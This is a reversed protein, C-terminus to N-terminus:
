RTDGIFSVLHVAHTSKAHENLREACANANIYFSM